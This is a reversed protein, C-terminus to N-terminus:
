PEQVEEAELALLAPAEIQLGASQQAALVMAEIDARSTQVVKEAHETLMKAAFEVDPTANALAYHLKRLAANRVASPAKDALAQEYEALAAKAGAFASDAAATAEATTEALRSAMNLGPIDGHDYELTVPVGETNVSTMLGAFQALSMAVQVVQKEAHVWDSHLDRKRVATSITLVMYEYHNIDSQFLVKGGSVRSVRAMGFAPHQQEGNEDTTYDEYQKPM